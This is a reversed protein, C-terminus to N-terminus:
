HEKEMVSTILGIEKMYKETQIFKHEKEMDSTILGIEKM